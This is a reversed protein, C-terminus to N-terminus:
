AVKTVRAFRSGAAAEDDDAAAAACKFRGSADVCRVRECRHYSGPRASTFACTNARARLAVAGDPGILMQYM